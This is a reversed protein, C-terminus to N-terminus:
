NPCGAASVARATETAQARVTLDHLADLCAQLLLERDSGVRVEGLLVRARSPAHGCIVRSLEAIVEGGLAVSESDHPAPVRGHGINGSADAVEVATGSQILMCRIVISEGSWVSDSPKM